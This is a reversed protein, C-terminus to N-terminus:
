ETTEEKKPAIQEAKITLELVYSDRNLGSASSEGIATDDADTWTQGTTLFESVILKENNHEDVNYPWKWYVTANVTIPSPDSKGEAATATDTVVYKGKIRNGDDDKLSTIKSTSDTNQLGIIADALEYLDYYITPDNDEEEIWYQIPVAAAEDDEGVNGSKEFEFTLEADVDADYSFDVTFEGQVGPAILCNDGAQAYINTVYDHEWIPLKFEGDEFNDSTFSWRAVLATDQGAYTSTYKAFTGSIMVTSIFCLVLLLSAMRFVKTKNKM